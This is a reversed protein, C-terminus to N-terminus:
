WAMIQIMNSLRGMQLFSEVLLEQSHIDEISVCEEKSIFSSPSPPCKPLKIRITEQVHLCFGQFAKRVDELPCREAYTVILPMADILKDKEEDM